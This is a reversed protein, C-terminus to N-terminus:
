RDEPLRAARYPGTKTAPAEAKVKPSHGEQKALASTLVRKVVDLPVQEFYTKPPRKTNTVM